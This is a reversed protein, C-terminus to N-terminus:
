ACCVEMCPTSELKVKDISALLDEIAKTTQREDRAQEVFARLEAKTTWCNNHDFLNVVLGVQDVTVSLQQAIYKDPGQTFYIDAAGLNEGFARAFFCSAWSGSQGDEFATLGREIQDNSM